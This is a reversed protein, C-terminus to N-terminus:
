PHQAALVTRIEHLKDMIIAANSRGLRMVAKQGASLAELGPDVYVYVAEQKLLLPSTELDPTQLLHDLVVILRDNFYADEYGLAEYAQQFLPYYRLYLDILTQSELRASIRMYASYRQENEPDVELFKEGSVMFQGSPPTLPM